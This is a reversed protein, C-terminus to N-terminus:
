LKCKSWTEDNKWRGNITVNWGAPAELATVVLGALVRTEDHADQLTSPQGRHIITFALMARAHVQESPMDLHSFRGTVTRNTLTRLKNFHKFFALTKQLDIHLIYSRIFQLHQIKGM